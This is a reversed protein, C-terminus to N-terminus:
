RPPWRPAPSRPGTGAAATSRRCCTSARPPSTPSSGTTATARAPRASTRSRSTPRTPPPATPRRAHDDRGRGRAADAARTKDVGVMPIQFLEPNYGIFTPLDGSPPTTATSTSSGSRGPRRRGRGGQRRLRLRRAQDRRDQRRQGRRLRRRHLRPQRRRDRQSGRPAHGHRAPGPLREPQQRQHRARVAPRRDRAPDGPVRRARRRQDGQDRGGARGHHVARRGRQGRLRRRRRGDVRPQQHRDRRPRRELRVARGAVHQRRRHRRRALRQLRRGVRPRRRRPRDLRRLRLGQARDLKAKPAVGPGVVFKNPDNYISPDYPGNYTSHNALVGQGAATGSVHTGHDGCDLPDPDPTPTTSGAEGDADYGNGAFDYGGIVKATPFTGPEIITPNNADYAAVTGPGGFNAHTYDIGTDISPSRRAPAPRAARRGRADPRRRVPGRQRQDAQLHRPAARRGRGPMAALKALQAGTARVKIGNYAFQYRHLVKGGLAKIRPDLKGQASRLAQARQRQQTASLGRAAAPSAALELVVTVKRKADALMPRFSPDIKDIQVRDYHRTPGAAMAMPALGLLLVVVALASVLRKM